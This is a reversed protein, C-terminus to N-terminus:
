AQRLMWFVFNAPVVEFKLAIDVFVGLLDALKLFLSYVVALLEAFIEGVVLLLM